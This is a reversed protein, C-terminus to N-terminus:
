RQTWAQLLETERSRSLGTQAADPTSRVWTLTDRATDALPRLALGAALADSVDLSVMAANDPQPLWLPLADPGVWPAVDHTALFTHDVWVLDPRADVGQAVQETFDGWTTSPGTADFTGEQQTEACTVIWAALDRVDILQAPDTPDGPVLVPGPEAFRIPWYTFRGSPDGPGAILGPRVITPAQTHSRVLQECAVKMGGYSEATVDVDDEIPSLTGGDDGYVSITSVFVWHAEAFAELAKRVHSPKRAIDIVADYAPEASPTTFDGPLERDRDITLHHAGDPVTGSVGRSACTVDHGRRLAEEAIARSLFVTGGFVLMKM